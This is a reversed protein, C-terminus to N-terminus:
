RRGGHGGGGPHGGGGGGPHGGGGVAHSVRVGGGHGGGGRYGGGRYGGVRGGGVYGGGGGYYGDGGYYPGDVYGCDNFYCNGGVVGGLVGSIVGGIIAEPVLNRRHYKIQEVQSDPKVLQPGAISTVGALAPATVFMMGAGVIAAVRTSKMQHDKEEKSYITQHQRQPQKRTRCEPLPM